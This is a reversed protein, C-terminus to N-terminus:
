IILYQTFYFGINELRLLFMFYVHLTRMWAFCISSTGYKGVILQQGIKKKVLVGTICKM